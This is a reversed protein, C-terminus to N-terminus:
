SSKRALHAVISDWENPPISLEANFRGEWVHGRWIHVYRAEGRAFLWGHRWHFAPGQHADGERVIAGTAPISGVTRGGDTDAGRAGETDDARRGAGPDTYGLLRMATAAINEIKQWAPVGRDQTIDHIDVLGKRVTAITLANQLDRATKASTFQSWELYLRDLTETNAGEPEDHDARLFHDDGM